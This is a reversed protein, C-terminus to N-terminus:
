GAVEAIATAEPVWPLDTTGYDVGQQSLLASLQGRHHTQHNFFHTVALWLPFTLRDHFGVQLQQETLTAVWAAIEQDTTERAARLADLEAFLIQDLSEYAYKNGQFTALWIRDTLLMHNLTGIVSHFFVGQDAALQEASLSACATYFQRNMAAHYAALAAFQQQM